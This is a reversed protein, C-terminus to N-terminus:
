GAVQRLLEHRILRCSASGRMGPFDPNFGQRDYENSKDELASDHLASQARNEASSWDVNINYENGFRFISMITKFPLPLLVTVLGRNIRRAYRFKPDSWDIALIEPQKNQKVASVYITLVKYKNTEPDIDYLYNKTKDHRFNFYVPIQPSMLETMLIFYVLM